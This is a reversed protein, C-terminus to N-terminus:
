WCFSLDVYDNRQSTCNGAVDCITQSYGIWQGKNAFIDVGAQQGNYNLEPFDTNNRDDWASAYRMGLGSGTDQFYISVYNRSGNEWPDGCASEFGTYQPATWDIMYRLTLVDSVNGANDIVRYQSTRNMEGLWWEQWYNETHWGDGDNYQVEKVGSGGTDDPYLYRWIGNQSWTGQAYEAWTTDNKLSYGLTPKSKDIRITFVDAVDSVNGNKDVARVHFDWNGGWSITVTM